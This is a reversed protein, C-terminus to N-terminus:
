LPREVTGMSVDVIDKVMTFGMLTVLLAMGIAVLLNQTKEGLPKGRLLEILCFLVHGGDLAPIPLLNMLALSTSILAVYYVFTSFGSKMAFSMYRAIKIPGSIEGLGHRGILMSGLVKLTDRNIGHIKKGAMAFSSFFGVKRSVLTSSGIGVLRRKASSFVVDNKETKTNKNNEDITEVKNVTRGAANVNMVDNKDDDSVFADGESGNVTNNVSNINDDMSINEDVNIGSANRGDGVNTGNEADNILRDMDDGNIGGDVENATNKDRGTGAADKNKASNIEGVTGGVTENKVLVPSGSGDVADFDIIKNLIEGNRAIKLTILRNTEDAIARQVQEFNNTKEGNVEVIVDGQKVGARQALSGNGVFDIRNSFESVGSVMFLLAFLFFGLLYNSFPGALAVAMRELPTKNVLCRKRDEDSLQNLADRDVGASAMDKDGLFKCFGGLPWLCIKWRTGNKDTRGFIERGYGIAFEDVAVGCCRAILYHGFEHVFVVLSLVVLFVVTTVLAGGLSSLSGVIATVFGGLNLFFMSM